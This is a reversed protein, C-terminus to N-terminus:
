RKHKPKGRDPKNKNPADLDRPKQPNRHKDRARIYDAKLDPNEDLIDNEERLLRGRRDSLETVQKLERKTEGFKVAIDDVEEKLARVKVSLEGCKGREKELASSIKDYETRLSANENKSSEIEQKLLRLERRYEIFKKFPKALKSFFKKIPEFSFNNRPPKSFDIATAVGNVGVIVPLGFNNTISFNEASNDKTTGTSSQWESHTLDKKREAQVPSSLSSLIATEDIPVDDKIKNLLAPFDIKKAIYLRENYQQEDLRKSLIGLVRTPYYTDNRIDGEIVTNPIYYGDNLKFFGLFSNNGGAVKDTKLKIRNGSFDGIMRVNSKLNLTQILVGLKQMTSGDKFDFDKESLNHLLSNEFFREATNGSIKENLKVGTLHLFNRPLSKTQIYEPNSESGYILLFNKRNFTDQYIQAAQSIIEIARKKTLNTM